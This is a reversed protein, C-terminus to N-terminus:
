RFVIRDTPSSVERYVIRSLAPRLPAELVGSPPNLEEWGHWEPTALRCLVRSYLHLAMRHRMTSFRTFEPFGLGFPM